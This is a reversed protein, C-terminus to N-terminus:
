IGFLKDQIVNLLVGSIFDFESNETTFAPALTLWDEEGRIILKRNFCENAISKGIGNPAKLFQIGCLLGNIHINVQIKSTLMSIFESLYKNFLKARMSLLGKTTFFELEELAAISAAVSVPNGAYTHGHLLRPIGDKDRFVDALKQSVIVAAAPSYGGSMGKGVCIIDPDIMEKQFAFVSETRGFGTIIEDVILLIGFERCLSELDPLYGTPSPWMGRLHNVPEVIIASITDPGTRLVLERLCDVSGLRWPTRNNGGPYRTDVPPPFFVVEYGTGEVRPINKRGTISKAGLTSGHYSDIRSLIKTRNKDGNRKHFEYAMVVAAEIAESGGSVTLVGGDEVGSFDILRDCLFILEDFRAYEKGLFCLQETQNKVANIIRTCSYGYNVNFVGSIGDQFIEGHRDILKTGDGRIFPHFRLSSQFCASIKNM